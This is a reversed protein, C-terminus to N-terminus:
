KVAFLKDPSIGTRSNHALISEALWIAPSKYTYYRLFFSLPSTSNKCTPFCRKICTLVIPKRPRAWAHGLCGFYYRSNLSLLHPIFRHIKHPRSAGFIFNLYWAYFRLSIYIGFVGIQWHKMTRIIHSCTWRWVFVSM